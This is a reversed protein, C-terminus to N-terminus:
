KAALALPGRDIPSDLAEGHDAASRKRMSHAAEGRGRVQLKQLVNHVHNKVTGLEIRLRRAIEKNSLGREILQLIEQERATLADKADAASARAEKGIPRREEAAHVASAATLRELLDVVDDISGERPIVGVITPCAAALAAGASAPAGIAVIQLDPHQAALGQAIALGELEGVDLLAIDPELDAAVSLAADCEVVAVVSMGQHQGLRLGLAESFLRMDSVILIRANRPPNASAPM